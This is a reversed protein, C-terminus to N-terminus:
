NSKVRNKTCLYSITENKKLFKRWILFAEIEEEQKGYRFVIRPSTKEKKSSIRLTSSEKICQMVLYRALEENKSELAVWAVIHLNRGWSVARDFIAHYHNKSSKLIIFGKLKFWKMTRLAWYKVIKFSVDDFDLKVTSKDTYGLIPPEPNLTETLGTGERAMGFLILWFSAQLFGSSDENLCLGILLISQRTFSEGLEALIMDKESVTLATVMFQFRNATFVLVLTHEICERNQRLDGSLL